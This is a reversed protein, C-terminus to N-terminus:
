IAGAPLYGSDPLEVKSGLWKVQLEALKGSDRLKRIQQNLFDRFDKDEPRTVWGIFRKDGIQGVIEFAAPREKVLLAMTPFSAVVVDVTRNAVALEAEAFTTYLKLEKYGAGSAKLKEEQAKASDVNASGLQTAVIKNRLDDLTKISADGKRKVVTPTGVAIPMTFAYQAARQPTVNVTTAVFDFKRAALGPLIGQWPLDLAELEVGMDKVILDLIDKGYGVIKGDKVFEMPPLAAEIGVVLKGRTKIKELLGQASAAPCLVLAAGILGVIGFVMRRTSSGSVM